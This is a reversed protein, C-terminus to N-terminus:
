NVRFVGPMWKIAAARDQLVQAPDSVRDVALPHLSQHAYQAKRAQCRPRIGTAWIRLM